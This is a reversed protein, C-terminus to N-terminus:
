AKSSNVKKRKAWSIKTLELLIEKKHRNETTEDYKKDNEIYNEQNSETSTRTTSPLNKGPTNILNIDIRIEKDINKLLIKDLFQDNNEGM